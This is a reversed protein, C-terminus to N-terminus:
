IGSCPGRGAPRWAWRLSPWAPLPRRRRRPLPLCTCPSSVMGRRMVHTVGGSAHTSQPRPQMHRSAKSLEGADDGKRPALLKGMSAILESQPTFAAQPAGGLTLLASRHAFRANRTSARGAMSHCLVIVMGGSPAQGVCRLPSGPSTDAAAMAAATLALAEGGLRSAVLVAVGWLRGRAAAQLAGWMDGRVLCAQCQAAAMEAPTAEFTAGGPTAGESPGEGAGALGRGGLWATPLSQAIAAEAAQGGSAPPFLVAALSPGSEGLLRARVLGWLTAADESDASAAKKAVYESLAARTSASVPAPFGELEELVRSWTGAGAALLGPGAGGGWQPVDPAPVEKEPGAGASARGLAEGSCWARWPAVMVEGVAGPTAGAVAVRGGFGLCAALGPARGVNCVRAEASSGPPRDVIEPTRASRSPMFTPHGAPGPAAHNSPVALLQATSAAANGTGTAGLPSWPQTPDPHSGHAAGSAMGQGAAAVPHTSTESNWGGWSQGGSAHGAGWGQSATVSPQGGGSDTSQTWGAGVQSAQEQGGGTSAQSGWGWAVEGSQGAAAPAWTNGQGTGGWGGEGGSAAASPAASTVPAAGAIAATGPVWPVGAAARSPVPTAWVTATGAYTSAGWGQSTQQAAMSASSAAASSAEGTAWSGGWGGAGNAGGSGGQDWAGAGTSGAGTTGQVPMGGSTGVTAASSQWSGAGVATSEHGTGWAQQGYAGYAGHAGYVSTSAPREASVRSAAVVRPGHSHAAYGLGYGPTHTYPLAGGYAPQSQAVQGGSAGVGGAWAAAQRSFDGGGAPWGGSATPALPAAGGSAHTPAAHPHGPAQDGAVTGFADQLGEFFDVDDGAPTGASVPMTRALPELWRSAATPALGPSPPGPGSVSPRPSAPMAFPNHDMVRFNPSDGKSPAPPGANASADGQSTLPDQPGQGAQGPASTAAPSAEDGPPKPSLAPSSSSAPPPSRPADPGPQAASRTPRAGDASLPASSGALPAPMLRMSLGRCQTLFGKPAVKAIGWGLCQGWPLLALRVRRDTGHRKARRRTSTTRIARTTTPWLGDTRCAWRRPLPICTGHPDLRQTGRKWRWAILYMAVGRVRVRLCREACCWVQLPDSETEASALSAAESRPYDRASSM